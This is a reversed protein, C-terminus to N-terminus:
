VLQAITALLERQDFTEKPLYANAGAQLGRARDEADGLGTVLVVPLEELDPEARVARTLGFGDLNPMEVDAVVLDFAHARLRALARM